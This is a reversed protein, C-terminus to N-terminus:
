SPESDEVESIFNSIDIYPGHLLRAFLNYSTEEKSGYDIYRSLVEFIRDLDEENILLTLRHVRDGSTFAKDIIDLHLLTFSDKRSFWFYQISKWKFLNGYTKIGMSTLEHKVIEPPITAQIFWLFIFAILAVILFYEELLAALAIIVLFFFGYSIYWSRDRFKWAREPAEWEFLKKIPPNKSSKKIKM